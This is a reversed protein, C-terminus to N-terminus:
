LPPLIDLDNLPLNQMPDVVEEYHARMRIDTTEVTNQTSQAAMDHTFISGAREAAASHSQAAALTRLLVSLMPIRHQHVYYFRWIRAEPLLPKPSDRRLYEEPSPRVAGPWNSAYHRFLHLEQAEIHGKDAATIFRNDVFYQLVAPTLTGANWPCLANVHELFRLLHSHKEQQGLLYSWAPAFISQVVLPFDRWSELHALLLGEPRVALRDPVYDMAFRIANRAMVWIEHAFFVTPGDGEIAYTGFILPYALDVTAALQAHFHSSKTFAEVRAAVIFGRIEVLDNSHAAEARSKGITSFSDLVARSPPDGPDHGRLLSIM